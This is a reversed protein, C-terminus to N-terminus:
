FWKKLELTKDKVNSYSGIRPFPTYMTSADQKYQNYGQVEGYVQPIAYDLVIKNLASIQDPINTLMNISNVLFVGRMIIKLEDPDQPGIVFAGKSMDYVGKRLANQLININQGSFFALSLPTDTWNGTMADRFNSNDNLPIKDSLSFPMKIDGEIINVRGNTSSCNM